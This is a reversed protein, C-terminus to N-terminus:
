GTLHVCGPRLYGEISQSSLMNVLSAQMLPPPPPPLRFRTSARPNVAPVHEAAPQKIRHRGATASRLFASRCPM